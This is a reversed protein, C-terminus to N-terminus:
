DTRLAVMSDVLAARRAPLWSALAAVTLVALAVLAALGPVGTVVVGLQRVLVGLTLASLPLGLVLGAMAVRLGGAFFMRVVQRATAGLAVRVGIERRRQRVSVALMAYLGVSALLLAIVGCGAASGLVELRSDRRVRDGQALTRMRNLPLTRAEDRAAAMLTPIVPEAPGATRILLRGQGRPMFPLFIPPYDSPYELSHTERDMRVVGIVELESRQEDYRASRVLRRGIPDETRFLAVALSEAIIVPTVPLTSDSAVFERGRVLSTEVARFYGPPIAVASGSVPSVTASHGVRAQPLELSVRGQGYGLPLVEAVGSVGAFRRALRTMMEDARGAPGADTDFDAVVLRDRIPDVGAPEIQGIVGAIAIALGVMLPQAVAIQAIVFARQLRSRSTTGGGTDKLVDALGSRTAHLAPSLGCLTATALAYVVMFGTTEWTPSVDFGDKAVEVLRSLAGFAWLGLAGGTLSLVAVETLLQRVIRGRSAGLALRVGIEYRRAIAGGVLLSNVTTTCVLLILLAVASFILIGPGLEDDYRGTVDIIGRLRVVDATGSWPRNARAKAVADARRAVVEVAAKAAAVSVGPRLRGAAEFNAANPDGLVDGSPRAIAQWSSLPLWLTREDSAQVAGNFRPPAVGVITVAVDNVRVQKGVAARAGGFRESAFGDGIIATLEPPSLQDLRSQDFGRGAAVRVGLSPFYNPTVFFARASMAGLDPDRLDVAVPSTVWGVVSEFKDTLAAYASLEPFSLRRAFPQADSKGRIKVLAPDNPVGPAPRTLIGNIVSFVASSFGIGLALTLVITVSTLPTRLFYRLAYTVDRRLSDVWQGGRADRAHEQLESVHGFELQAALRADRASMGRAVFRETAQELHAAMEAHMEREARSRLLVARLWARAQGVASMLERR